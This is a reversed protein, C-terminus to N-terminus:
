IERNDNNDDMVMFIHYNIEMHKHENILHKDNDDIMDKNDDWDVCIERDYVPIIANM